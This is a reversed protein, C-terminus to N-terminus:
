YEEFYRKKGLEPEVIDLSLQPLLCSKVIELILM